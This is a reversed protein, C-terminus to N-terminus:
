MVSGSIKYICMTPIPFSYLIRFLLLTNEPDVMTTFRSRCYTIVRLITSHRYCPSCASEVNASICKEGGGDSDEGHLYTNCDIGAYRNPQVWSLIWPLNWRGIIRGGRLTGRKSIPPRFRTLACPAGAPHAIVEHRGKDFTATHLAIAPGGVEQSLSSCVAHSGNTWSPNKCTSKFMHLCPLNSFQPRQTNTTKSTFQFLFVRQSYDVRLAPLILGSVNLEM